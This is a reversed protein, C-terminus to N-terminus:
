HSALCNFLLTSILLCIQHVQLPRPKQPAMATHQTKDYAPLERSPHCFLVTGMEVSVCSVGFRPKFANDEKCAANM